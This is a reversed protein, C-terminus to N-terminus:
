TGKGPGPKHDLSLDRPFPGVAEGTTGSGKAGGSALSRGRDYYAYSGYVSSSLSSRRVGNLVLGVVKSPELTSLADEIERRKTQGARVVLLVGQALNALSRGSALPLPPSDFIVIDYLSRTQGMVAAFRQDAILNEVKAVAGAGLLDLGAGKVAVVADSFEADGALIDALGPEPAEQDFYEVLSPRRMDCEILLVRRESMRGLTLALNLSTLTKGAAPEPSTVTLFFPAERESVFREELRVALNLYQEAAFSSPAVGADITPSNAKLAISRLRRGGSSGRSPGQMRRKQRGM